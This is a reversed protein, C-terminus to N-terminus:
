KAYNRRILTL